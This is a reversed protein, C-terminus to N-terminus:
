HGAINLSAKVSLGLFPTRISKGSSGGGLESQLCIQFIRIGSKVRTITSRQTQPDAATLLARPRPLRLVAHNLLLFFSLPLSISYLEAERM